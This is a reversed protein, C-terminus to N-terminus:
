CAANNMAALFGPHVVNDADFVIFADFTGLELLYDVAFSLVDGKSHIPVTCEIVKAGAARAANDTDDSCNNSFVFIDFLGRPYQQHLLSEVLSGIVAEENRAPIIVAFRRSPEHDPYRPTRRISLLLLLVFYGAYATLAMRLFWLLIRILM